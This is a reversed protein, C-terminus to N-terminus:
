RDWMKIGVFIDITNDDKKPYTESYSELTNVQTKLYFAKAINNYIRTIYEMIKRDYLRDYKDLKSPEIGIIDRFKIQLPIDYETEKYEKYYAYNLYESVVYGIVQIIDLGNGKTYDRDYRVLLCDINNYQNRFCFSSLPFVLNYRLLKIIKEIDCDKVVNCILDHDKWDLVDIETNYLEFEYSGLKKM